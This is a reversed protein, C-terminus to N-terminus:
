VVSKRDLIYDESLREFDMKTVFFATPVEYHTLLKWLTLTHAQVSDLGSIVIVALDLARLSREAEASFDIHGPTDLLFIKADGRTFFSEGTFITIGRSKEIEHTDMVTSGAEIRGQSRIDGSTFLISEALTTKGADVHALLGVTLKKM